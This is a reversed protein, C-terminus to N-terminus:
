ALGEPTVLATTPEDDPFQLREGNVTADLNAPAGLELWLRDGSFRRTAAQELIGVFLLEGAASGARVQLWCDGRAATLVLNAVKPPAPEPESAATETARTEVTRTEAPEAATTTPVPRTTPEAVTGRDVTDADADAYEAWAVATLAALALTAALGVAALIRELRTSPM